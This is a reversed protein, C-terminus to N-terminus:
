KAFDGTVGFGTGVAKVKMQEFGGSELRRGPLTRDKLNYLFYGVPQSNSPHGDGGPSPASDPSPAMSPVALVLFKRRHSSYRAIFAGIERLADPTMLRGRKLCWWAVLRDNWPLPELQQQIRRLEAAAKEAMQQRQAATGTSNAASTSSAVGPPIQGSASPHGNTAKGNRGSHGNRSPSLGLYEGIRRIAQGQSIGLAWGVADIGDGLGKGCQNCIVSGHGDRNSFRFRDDGFCKPCPGARGSLYDDGIGAVRNLVEAWRGHAARKVDSIDYSM